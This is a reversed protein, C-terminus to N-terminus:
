LKFILDWYIDGGDGKSRAKEVPITLRLLGEDTTESKGISEPWVRHSRLRAKKPLELELKLFLGLKSDDAAPAMDKRVRTREKESPALLQPWRAGPGRPLRVRLWRESRKNMMEVSIDMVKLPTTNLSAFHGTSVQLRARSKWQVSAEAEFSAAGGGAQLASIRIQGSLDDGLKISLSSADSEDCAVLGLLALSLILASRM